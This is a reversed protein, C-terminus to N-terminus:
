YPSDLQWEEKLNILSWLFSNVQIYAHSTYVDQTYINIETVPPPSEFNQIYCINGQSNHAM